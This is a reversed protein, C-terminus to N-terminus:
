KLAKILMEYYANKPAKDLIRLMDDSTIFSNKLAAYEPSGIPSGLRKQISSVYNSADQLSEFTGADMWASSDDLHIVKLRNKKLYCKNLDTIEIENRASPKLDKCFDSANNDYLYLGTVAHNSIYKKPKEVISIPEDTENLQIVGYREPDDVKSTIVTAGDIFNDIISPNFINSVFINDGLILSCNDQQIFSEGIILAEAIGKPELQVSYSINIGFKSGDNLLSEFLPIQSPTSILLIDRIGLSILTSLPYYILPKDFVPLLQKSTVSTLPHLRTGSGGALIIGKMSSKCNKAICYGM